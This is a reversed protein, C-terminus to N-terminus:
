SIFFVNRLSKPLDASLNYPVWSIMPSWVYDKGIPEFYSSGAKICDNQQVRDYGFSTLENKTFSQRQELINLFLKNKPFLTATRPKCKRWVLGSVTDEDRLITPLQRKDLTFFWQGEKSHHAIQLYQTDDTDTVGVFIIHDAQDVFQLAWDQQANGHQELLHTSTTFFECVLVGDKYVLVRSDISQRQIYESRATRFAVDAQDHALQQATSMKKFFDSM